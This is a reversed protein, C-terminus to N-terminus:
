GPSREGEPRGGQQQSPWKASIQELLGKGSASEALRGYPPLRSCSKNETEHVFGLGFNPSRSEPPRTAKLSLSVIAFADPQGLTPGTRDDQV